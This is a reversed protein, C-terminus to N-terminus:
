AAGRFNAKTAIAPRGISPHAAGPWADGIHGGAMAAAGMGCAFRASAARHLRASDEGDLRRLKQKQIPCVAMVASPQAALLPLFQLESCFTVCLCTSRDFYYDIRNM